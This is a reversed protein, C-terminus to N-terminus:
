LQKCQLRKLGADTSLTRDVTRDATQHSDRGEAVCCTSGEGCTAAIHMATACVSEDHVFM